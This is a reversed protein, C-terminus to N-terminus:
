KLGKRVREYIGMDAVFIVGREVIDPVLRIASHVCVKM